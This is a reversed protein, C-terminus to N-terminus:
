KSAATLAAGRRQFLKPVSGQSLDRLQGLCPRSTGLSRWQVLARRRRRWRHVDLETLGGGYKGSASSCNSSLAVRLSKDRSM